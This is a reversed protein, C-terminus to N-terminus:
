GLKKLLAGLQMLGEPWPGHGSETNIHGAAGAELLSSGWAAAFTRARDISCYPDNSSAVLASPFPLPTMPVPAFGGNKAPWVDLSELDPPAVLFAGAVLGPPLKAAAHVATTAGLSHAVIVVPKQAVAVAEVLRGVWDDRLPTEWDAQEVRRATSLKRQWRTQWHDPGSNGWGPVILIEADSTKM